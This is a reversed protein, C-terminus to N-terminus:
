WCSLLSCSRFDKAFQSWLCFYDNLFYIAPKPPFLLKLQQILLSTCVLTWKRSVLCWFLVFIHFILLTWVILFKVSKNNTWKGNGITETAKGVWFIPFATLSICPFRDYLSVAVKWSCRCQMNCVFYNSGIWRAWGLSLFSIGFYCELWIMGTQTCMLGRVSYIRLGDKTVTLSIILLLLWVFFIICFFSGRFLDWFIACILGAPFWVFCCIKLLVELCFRVLM